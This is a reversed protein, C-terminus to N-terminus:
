IGNREEGAVISLPVNVRDWSSSSPATLVSLVSQSENRTLILVMVDKLGYM